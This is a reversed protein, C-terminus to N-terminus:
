HHSQYLTGINPRCVFNHTDELYSGVAMKGAGNGGHVNWKCWDFAYAPWPTLYSSNSPTRETETFLTGAGASEEAMSSNARPRIDALGLPSNSAAGSPTSPYYKQAPTGAAYKSSDPTNSFPIYKQDPGLGAPSSRSYSHSSSPQQPQNMTNSRTPLTYQQANTNIQPVTPVTSPATYASPPPGPRQQVQLSGPLSSPANSYPAAQQLSLSPAVYHDPSNYAHQQQSQQAPPLSSPQSPQPPQPPASGSTQSPLHPQQPQQNMTNVHLEEGAPARRPEFGRAQQQQQQQQQPQQQQQHQQPHSLGSSTPPATHGGSHAAPPSQTSLFADTGATTTGSTANRLNGAPAGISGLAQAAHGLGQSPTFAANQHHGHFPMTAARAVCRSRQAAQSSPQCHAPTICFSSPHSRHAGQEVWGGGGGRGRWGGGGDRDKAKAQKAEAEAEAEAWIRCRQAGDGNRRRQPRDM